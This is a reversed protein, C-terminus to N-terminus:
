ERNLNENDCQWNYHNYRVYNRINYLEEENRVVRDFYNRQWVVYNNNKKFEKVRKTVSSKLGSVFSSLSKPKMQLPSHCEGMPLVNGNNDPSGGNAGVNESKFIEIIIHLHNPMIIFEDIRIEKRIKESKLIEENIISGINSLIIEQENLVDNVKKEIIESFINKKNYSCITIFYYGTTSYDYNKYRISKRKKEM